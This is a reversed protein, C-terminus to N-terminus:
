KNTSNPEKKIQQNPTWIVTSHDSPGIPPATNPQQYFASFNTFIKDLTVDGRTPVQVVQTLGNNKCLNGINLHNVDGLICIGAEPHNAHVIDLSDQLHNIM